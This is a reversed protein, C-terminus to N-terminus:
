EENQKRSKKLNRNLSIKDVIKYTSPRDYRNLTKIFDDVKQMNSSNKEKLKIEASVIFGTIPNKKAYVIADEILESSTLINEVKLINVKRGAIKINEEDRGKFIIRNNKVECIDKTNFWKNNKDLIHLENNVLRLNYKKLYEKPFGEFLDSVSFVVGTETTAYIHNIKSNPFLDKLKNLLEQEAIEGGLTINKLNISKFNKNFNILLKWFTPTGSIRNINNQSILEFLNKPNNNSTSYLFHSNFVATLIVQLGAYSNPNYTLLWRDTEGNIDKISEFLNKLDINVLKPEGTTGSTTLFFSNPKLINESDEFYNIGLEDTSIKQLKKYDGLILSYNLNKLNAILYISILPNSGEYSLVLNNPRTDKIFFKIKNLENQYQSFSKDDFYLKNELLYNQLSQLQKM